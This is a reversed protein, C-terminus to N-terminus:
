NGEIRNLVWELESDRHDLRDQYTLTISVDPKIGYGDPTTKHKSDIHMLGIRARVKTNPLTYTKYQGAVTGNYAGGTEEGVFVARNDGKLQTSIVSSASFSNGNILVYIHGKFNLPNPDQAKAARYSYYLQGEKKSTRLLDSPILIPSLLGVLLKTTLSTSNSMASKLIPLRTNTESKNILAFKKDTLYTYLIRIEKLRGGFNNRLDIILDKTGKAKLTAFTEEYFEKYKSGKSFSKITLLAVASDKGIFNLTKAYTKTKYDFGRKRNEDRKQKWKIRDALKKAKRQAKTLTDKPKNKLISDTKAVDKESKFIRKYTKIFTSDTNRFTLAISDFTGNAQQYYRLFRYGVVRNHFTTNYGDSAVTKKFESHLDMANQGNVKILEAHKLLSDAGRAQRVIIKNEVYEFDLNNVDFKADLRAMREKRKYAKSPPAVSMHGQGVYKTVQALAKHFSRSTMPQNIAKKLSDFKFDLTEKSTYQYLRPHLRQLQKYLKDIDSHLDEVSHLKTVADNHKEITGCSTLLIAISILLLFQKM